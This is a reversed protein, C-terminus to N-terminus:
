VQSNSLNMEILRKDIFFFLNFFFFSFFIMVIDAYQLLNASVINLYPEYLMLLSSLHSVLGLSFASRKRHENINRISICIAKDCAENDKAKETTALLDNLVRQVSLPVDVLVDYCANGAPSNGSLKIKHDLHIPQAPSLHHSIKQSVMTFKMKDEGFVKRLAPDCNFYCPDDPNQLKRDKVYHWIAVIIRSRTDVEIGLVEMLALSLKYKEPTYNM